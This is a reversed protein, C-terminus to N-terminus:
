PRTGKRHYTGRDRRVETLDVAAPDSPNTTFFETAFKVTRRCSECTVDKRVTTMSHHWVGCAARLNPLGYHLKAM